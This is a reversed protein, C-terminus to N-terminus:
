DLLQTLCAAAPQVEREATVSNPFHFARLLDLIEGESPMRDGSPALLPGVRIKPDSSLARHIRASRPLDKISSCFTRWTETSAKRM